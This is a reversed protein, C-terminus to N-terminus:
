RKLLKEVAQQAHFGFISDDFAKKDKIMGRLAFLDKKALVVLQLAYKKDSM